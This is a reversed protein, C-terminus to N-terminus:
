FIFIFLPMDLKNFKPTDLARNHGQSLINGSKYVLCLNIQFYLSHSTSNQLFFLVEQDKDIHLNSQFLYLISGESFRLLSGFPMVIILEDMKAHSVCTILPCVSWAVCTVVPQMM